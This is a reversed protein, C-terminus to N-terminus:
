SKTNATPTSNAVPQLNWIEVCNSALNCSRNSTTLRYDVGLNVTDSGSIGSMAGTLKVTQQDAIQQTKKDTKTWVGQVPLSVFDVSGRMTAPLATPVTGGATGIQGFHGYQYGSAFAPNQTPSATNIGSLEYDYNTDFWKGSMTSTCNDTLEVWNLFSLKAASKLDNRSFNVSGTTRVPCSIDVKGNPYANPVFSQTITGAWQTLPVPFSQLGQTEVVMPGALNAISATNIKVEWPLWSGPVATQELGNIFIKGPTKGFSNDHASVTLTYVNTGQSTVTNPPDVHIGSISPLLTANIGTGQVVLKAPSAPAENPSFVSTDTTIKLTDRMYNFISTAPMPRAPPTMSLSDGRGLAYDYFKAATTAAWDAGVEEDFGILNVAHNATKSQLTSLFNLWNMGDKYLECADVYVWADAAFTWHRRIFNKSIAWYVYGGKVQTLRLDGKDWLRGLETKVMESYPPTEKGMFHDATALYYSPNGWHDASNFGHTDLHLVSVDKMDAMLDAVFSFSIGAKYGAQQLWGTLQTPFGRGLGDVDVMVARKQTPSPGSAPAIAAVTKTTLSATTSTATAKLATAPPTTMLWSTGRGDKFRAWVTSNSGIGADAFEPLTPIFAVLEASDTAVNGTAVQTLHNSVKAMAALREDFTMSVPMGSMNKAVAFMPSIIEFTLTQTNSAGDKDSATIQVSYAGGMMATPSTASPTGSIVGTSADLLIGEPLAGDTITYTLIPDGDTAAVYNALSLNAIPTGVASEIDPLEALIPPIATAASSVTFAITKSVSSGDKDIANVSASYTGAATPIGDIIGTLLNLGLGPPLSGASLTFGMPDGNTQTAFGTLRLPESATGVTAVQAPIDSMLPPSTTSVPTPRNIWIGQNAAIPTTGFDLYNRSTIYSALGGSSALSPAYFLWNNLASDWAWLTTVNGLLSTLAPASLGDSTSSLNWGSTLNAASLSFGIGSQSGLDLPLASSNNVWYGEGPQITTLVGYGKGAAYTSLTGASELSPAYFAWSSTRANWTWVSTVGPQAGFTQKVDIPTTLSNGLLTWGKALTLPYSVPAACANSGWTLAACLLGCAIVPYVTLKFRIAKVM